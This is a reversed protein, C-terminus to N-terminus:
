DDAYPKSSRPVRDAFNPIPSAPRSGGIGLIAQRDAWSPWLGIELETFVGPDAATNEKRKQDARGIKYAPEYIGKQPSFLTRGLYRTVGGDLRNKGIRFFTEFGGSETVLGPAFTIAKTAIKYLESSGHFEEISPVLEHDYKDRKRLHAVLVIPKGQELALTRATKAIKRISKVENEDEDFDFYHVHDVIILDTHDSNMVVSEVLTHIDFKNAKYGIFLNKYNDFIEEAAKIEYKVLKEDYMGLLWKPFSLGGELRPRDPDAFFYRALVQYKLRRNIEKDDAELAIYHVRKGRRVNELAMNSCFQTKGAGSNAGVLILDNPIIGLMADDLYKVGFTLLKASLNKRDDAENFVDQAISEFKM